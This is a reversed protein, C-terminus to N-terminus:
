YTMGLQNTLAVESIITRVRTFSKCTAAPANTVCYRTIYPAGPLVVLNQNRDPVATRTVLRFRVSRIRQPGEANPLTASAAQGYLGIATGTDDMDFVEVGGLANVVSLGLKLDVAYEAVIQRMAVIPVPPNAADLFERYLNFKNGAVEVGAAPDLAPDVNPGIYWRVRQVPSITVPESDKAGCNTGGGQLVAPGGGDDPSFSIQAGDDNATVGCVVVYHQCGRADVVRASFPRGPVPTFAAQVSTLPVPTSRILRHVAADAVRTLAVNQVGCSGPTNFFTGQYSDDTTYNGGLILADPNLGNNASLTNPGATGANPIPANGSGGRIIQVGQLDNLAAYRSGGPGGIVSPNVVAIKHAMPVSAPPLAGDRALKINGTSMYASRALDQRLREAATRVTSEVTSIRAAEFFTTTAARALGVVAITVILGAVLSVMLEVLTFGRVRSRAQRM